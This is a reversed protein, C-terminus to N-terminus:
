AVTTTSIIVVTQTKLAVTETVTIFIANSDGNAVGQQPMIPVIQLGSGTASPAPITITSPAAATAM